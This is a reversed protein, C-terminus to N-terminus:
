HREFIITESPYHSDERFSKTETAGGCDAGDEQDRGNGQERDEPEKM